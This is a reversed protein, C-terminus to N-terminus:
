GMQLNGQYQSLDPHLQCPPSSKWGKDGSHLDAQSKEARTKVSEYFREDFVFLSNKKKKLSGSFVHPNVSEASRYPCSEMGSFSLSLRGYVCLRRVDPFVNTIRELASLFKIPFLLVTPWDLASKWGNSTFANAYAVSKVDKWGCVCVVIIESSTVRTDERQCHRFFWWLHHTVAIMEIMWSYKVALMLIVSFQQATCM